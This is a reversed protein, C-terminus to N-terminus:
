APLLLMYEIQFSGSLPARIPQVPGSTRGFVHVHEFQGRRRHAAASEFQVIMAGSTPQILM